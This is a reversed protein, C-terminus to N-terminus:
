DSDPGNPFYGRPYFNQNFTAQGRQAEYIRLTAASGDAHLYNSGSGHKNLELRKNTAENVWDFCWNSSGTPTWNPEAYLTYLSPWKLRSFKKLRYWYTGAAVAYGSEQNPKYLFTNGASKAWGSKTFYYAAIDYKGAEVPCYFTKPIPDPDKINLYPALLVYVQIYDVNVNGGTPPIIDDNDEGYNFFLFGQQKLNSLCFIKQAAQRAKSLA